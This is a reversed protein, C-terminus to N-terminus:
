ATRAIIGLISDSHLDQREREREREGLSSPGAAKLDLNPADTITAAFIVLSATRLVPYEAIDLGTLCCENNAVGKKCMSLTRSGHAPAERIRGRGVIEWEWDLGKLAEWNL